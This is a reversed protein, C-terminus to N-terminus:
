EKSDEYINGIVEIINKDAREDNFELYGSSFIRGTKDRMDNHFGHKEDNWFVTCINEIDKNHDSHGPCYWNKRIYKVIDGEWIEKGNKDHLGTFQMPIYHDGSLLSDYYGETEWENQIEDWGMMIKSEIDWARFKIERM